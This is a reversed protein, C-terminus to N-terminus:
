CPGEVKEMMCPRGNEVLFMKFACLINVIIFCFDLLKIMVVLEVNDVLLRICTINLIYSM